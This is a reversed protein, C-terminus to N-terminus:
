YSQCFIQNGMARCTTNVPANIRNNLMQQNYSNQWNQANSRINEMQQNYFNQQNQANIARQQSMSSFYIERNRQERAFEDNDMAQLRQVYQANAALFESAQEQNAKEKARNADGITFKGDLLALYIADLKNYYRNGVGVLAPDVRSSAALRPQRCESVGNLYSKLADKQTSNLKAKSSM